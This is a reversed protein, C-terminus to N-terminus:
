EEDEWGVVMPGSGNARLAIALGRGPGDARADGAHYIVEGRLVRQRYVAIRAASGPATGTAASPLRLDPWEEPFLISMLLALESTTIAIRDAPRDDALLEVREAQIAVELRDVLIMRANAPLRFKRLATKASRSKTSKAKSPNAPM